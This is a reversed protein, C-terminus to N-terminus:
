TRTPATLHAHSSGMPDIPLPPGNNLRYSYFLTGNCTWSLVCTNSEWCRLLFASHVHSVDEHIDYVTLVGIVFEIPQM